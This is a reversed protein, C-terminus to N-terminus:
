RGTPRKTLTRGMLSSGGPLKWKGMGWGRNPKVALVKGGHDIIMDVSLMPRAKWLARRVLPDVNDMRIIDDNLLWKKPFPIDPECYVVKVDNFPM